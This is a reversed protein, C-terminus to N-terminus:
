KVEQYTHYIHEYSVSHDDHLTIVRGGMMDEAYYVRDTSKIGYGFDIGQYNIIFNNIHDHGFYIGHTSGKEKIVDYFHSNYDPSCPDERREGYKLVTGNKGEQAEDWANYIEPLPIHCFMLSPVVGGYTAKSYDMLDKYWNIQDDKFYDYGFYNGFYYRNSDMVILQEFVKDDKM